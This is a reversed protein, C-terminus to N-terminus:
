PPIPNLPPAVEDPALTRTPEAEYGPGQRVLRAGFMPQLLAHDERRVTYQGKPGTFAYGELADIMRDVDPGGAAGIARALLQGAVFGDPTFLDPPTNSRQQVRDVLLQNAPNQPAGGAPQPGADPANPGAGSPGVREQGVGAAACARELMIVHQAIIEAERPTSDGDSVMLQLGLERLCLAVNMANVSGRQRDGKILVHFYDPVWGASADPGTEGHRMMLQRVKELPTDIINQARLMKSLYAAEDANIEGDARVLTGLFGLVHRQVSDAIKGPGPWDGRREARYATDFIFQYLEAPTTPQSM